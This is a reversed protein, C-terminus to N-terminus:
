AANLSHIFSIIKIRCFDSMRRRFNYRMLYAKSRKTSDYKEQTKKEPSSMQITHIQLNDVFLKQEALSIVCITTARTYTCNLSGVIVCSKYELYNKDFKRDIDLNWTTSVLLLLLGRALLSLELHQLM